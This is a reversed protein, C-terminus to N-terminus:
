RPNQSSLKLAPQKPTDKKCKLVARTEDRFKQGTLSYIFFNISHNVFLVLNTFGKAIMYEKPASVSWWPRGILIIISPITCIIFVFSVGLCMATMQHFAKHNNNISSVSDKRSRTLETVIWLNCVLLFCMPLLSAMTFVIWPRVFDSFYAFEATPSGCKNIETVMTVNAEQHLTVELGQTWFVHVNKVLAVCFLSAAIIKIKKPRCIIEKHFPFCVAIFRFCLLKKLYSM